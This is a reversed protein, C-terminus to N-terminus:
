ETEERMKSQDMYSQVEEATLMRFKRTESPILAIRVTL